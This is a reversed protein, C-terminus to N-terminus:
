AYKIGTRPTRSTCVPPNTPRPDSSCLARGRNWHQSSHACSPQWLAELFISPYPPSQTRGRSTLHRQWFFERCNNQNRTCRHLANNSRLKLFCVALKQKKNESIFLLFWGTVSIAYGVTARPQQQLTADEPIKRSKSTTDPMYFFSCMLGLILVFTITLITRYGPVLTPRSPRRVKSHRRLSTPPPSSRSEILTYNSHEEDTNDGCITTLSPQYSLQMSSVRESSSCANTASDSDDLTSDGIGCPLLIINSSSSILAASRPTRRRRSGSSTSRM